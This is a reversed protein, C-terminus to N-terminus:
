VDMDSPELSKKPFFEPGGTSVPETLHYEQGSIVTKPHISPWISANRKMAASSPGMTSRQVDM